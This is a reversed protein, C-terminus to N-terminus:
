RGSREPQDPDAELRFREGARLGDGAVVVEGPTAAPGLLVVRLREGSATTLWNAQHFSQVAKQPAVFVGAEMKGSLVLEARLGGRAGSLGAVAPADVVLEVPIRRSAAEATPGVRYLRAAVEAGVEPLLLSVASMARLLGLEEHSLLLPVLLRRFDGLRLIPEGPSLYEGEQRYRSMVEWGAPGTLHHRDLQQRLRGEENKLDALRLEFIDARLVAEEFSAQDTSRSDILSALRAVTKKELELQRVAQQQAIRNAEIDLMIFTSDVEAVPGTVTEGLDVHIALCRGGVESAVVMEAVPRTFGTLVLPRQYPRLPFTGGDTEAGHLQGVLLAFFLLLIRVVM